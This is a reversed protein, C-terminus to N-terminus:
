GEHTIVVFITSTGRDQYPTATLIKFGSHDPDASSIVLFPGEWKSQLKGVLDANAKRRLVFHGPEISRLKVKRNRWKATEAQYRQINNLAELKIGEVCDAAIKREEEDNGNTKTRLSGHIAEEPLVAEEGFLLKFPTFGTTRSESTNHSWVVKTMEEVWKGKKLNVLRKSVGLFIEGNAHEVAGNSQPHRVSAFHLRTGISRCFEQFAEAEFHTGNDVTMSRPVGFRCVINQWFFRQVSNSTISSLAKAEIWKTFYEVAVVAYRLNGQATPLPGVLDM